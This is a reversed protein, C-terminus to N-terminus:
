GKTKCVLTKMCVQNFLGIFEPPIGKTKYFCPPPLLNVDPDVLHNARNLIMGQYIDIGTCGDLFGCTKHAVKLCGDGLVSFLRSQFMPGNYHGNAGPLVFREFIEVFFILPDQSM